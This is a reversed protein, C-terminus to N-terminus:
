PKIFADNSHFQLNFVGGKNELISFFLRAMLSLISSIIPHHCIRLPPRICWKLSKRYVQSEWASQSSEVSSLEDNEPHEFSVQNVIEFQILM